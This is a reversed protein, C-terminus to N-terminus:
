SCFLFTINKTSIEDISRSLTLIAIDNIHKTASYNEHIKAKVIPIDTPNAGEDDDYLDLEGVRAIYRRVFYIFKWTFFLLKFM